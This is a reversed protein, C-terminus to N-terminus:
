EEPGGASKWMQNLILYDQLNERPAVPVRERTARTQSDQIDKWKQLHKDM